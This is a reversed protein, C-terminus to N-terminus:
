VASSWSPGPVWTLSSKPRRSRAWGAVNTSRFAAPTATCSAPPSCTAPAPPTSAGSRGADASEVALVSTPAHRHGFLGPRRDHDRRSRPLAQRLPPSRRRRPREGRVARVLEHENGFLIDVESPAGPRPLRPPAPRCLVFGVSRSRCSGVTPMRPRVSPLTVSRRRPRTATTSTARWTCCGCGCGDRTLRRHDDVCLLSSVGLYTNMTREADPTVVIICRGTPTHRRRPGARVSSCVSPACTTASCRASSTAASRASTRRRARRLQGRRTM